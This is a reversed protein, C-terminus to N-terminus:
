SLNWSFNDLLDDCNLLMNRHVIQDKLKMVHDLVIKYTGTDDGTASVIKHIKKECPNRLKGTGGRESLNKVLVRDGPKLKNLSKVKTNHRNIDKKKRAESHNKAIQYAQRTHDEM